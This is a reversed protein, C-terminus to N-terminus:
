DRVGHRGGELSMEPNSFAAARGVAPFRSLARIWVVTEGDNGALARHVAPTAAARMGELDAHVALRVRVAATAPTVIEVLDGDRARLRQCVEGSTFVVSGDSATEEANLTVQARNGRLRRRLVRTKREDPVTGRLVVGYVARASDASVYGEAVDMAVRSPDRDLPDGYGGAGMTCKEILDDARLPFDVCKGSVPGLELVRGDRQVHVQWPAGSEGGFVGWPPIEAPDMLCTVAGPGDLLRLHRRVGLGGRAAGPGGSDTWLENREVRLTPFASEIIETAVFWGFDGKDFNATADYGDHGATAASGGTSMDFYSHERHSAQDWGSVYTHTMGWSGHSCMASGVAPALAGAVAVAGTYMALSSCGCAAPYAARLISGTETVVTVPRFSGGNFPTTPDLLAKLAIFAAGPGTAEGGNVPEPVQPSSGAFDVTATDGAIEIRVNIEHRVDPRRTSEVFHRYAYEGDPLRAIAARMAAEARDLLVRACAEVAPWGSRAIVDTMRGEALRMAGLMAAVDLAREDALRINAWMLDFVAENPVGREYLKVFPIILGEQHIDTAVPSISGLTMGGIDLYHGRVAAWLCVAGDEFHPALFAVDNLHSSLIYPDNVMFVDGPAIDDGFKERIGRVALTGPVLHVPTGETIGLLEGTATMLACSFDEAEKIQSGFATLVIDARMERIVTLLANRVLEVTVPDPTM